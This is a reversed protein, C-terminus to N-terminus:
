RNDFLFGGPRPYAPYGPPPTPPGRYFRDDRSYYDNDRSYNNGYNDRYSPGSPYSPQEV